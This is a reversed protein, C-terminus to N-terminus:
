YGAHSPLPVVLPEEWGVPGRGGGCVAGDVMDVYEVVETEELFLSCGDPLGPVEALIALPESPVM